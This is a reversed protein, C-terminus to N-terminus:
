SWYFNGEDQDVLKLQLNGVEEELEAIKNEMEVTKEAFEEDLCIDKISELFMDRKEDRTQRAEKLSTELEEIREQSEEREKELMAEHERREKKVDSVKSKLHM